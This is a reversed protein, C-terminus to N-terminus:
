KTAASAYVAETFAISRSRSSGPVMEIHEEALILEADRGGFAQLQEASDVDFVTLIILRFRLLRSIPTGASGRRSRAPWSSPSGTTSSRLCRRRHPRARRGDGVEVSSSPCM